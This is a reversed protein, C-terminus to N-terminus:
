SGSKLTLKKSSAIVEESAKKPHRSRPMVKRWGQRHLVRYIQSNGIHHGVEHEYAEAMERIDVMQGQEARQRYGEVFAAERDPSMNRRNGQYQKEAVSALGEKFYKRILNSVHSRHFGTSEAIEELGKGKCRLELVELRKDTKKDRNKKRAEGIELYQEKSFKYKM